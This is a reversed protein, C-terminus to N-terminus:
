RSLATPPCRLCLSSACSSPLSRSASLSASNRVFSYGVFALPEGTFSGPKKPRDVGNDGLQDFDEDFNSTDDPGRLEPVFPPTEPPTLGHRL